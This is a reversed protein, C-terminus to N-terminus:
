KLPIKGVYTKPIILNRNLSFVKVLIEIKIRLKINKSSIDAREYVIKTYLTSPLPNKVLM